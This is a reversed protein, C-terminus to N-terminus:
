ARKGFLHEVCEISFDRGPTFSADVFQQFCGSRRVKISAKFIYDARRVAVDVGLFDASESVSLPAVQALVNDDQAFGRDAFGVEGLDQDCCCAAVVVGCPEVAGVHKGGFQCDELGIVGYPQLEDLVEM